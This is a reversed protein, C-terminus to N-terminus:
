ATAEEPAGTRRSRFVLYTQGVLVPVLSAGLVLLWGDVGPPTVELVNALPAVYVALGLLAICLVLAGWVFPNRTIENRLLGSDPNRMNFVHFLRSVSLTLFSVTVAQETGMDLWTFALAFAGLITGAIVVGYGMIEGWHYRTLIPEDSPRPPHKMVDRYGGGLGLALAPFVDNIMNLYLIQLPLLPLPASAVSALAVALVEGVNGSLLYIVFKRINEFIIRGQEVAAVITPFADDQLVMDAAEQAVQTGREGMAVGIDASKLAPADNVGDGTMAVIHGHEQHLDILRLKQEPSVRAFISAELARREQEESMTDPDGLDTSHMVSADPDDVLGVAHAIHRATEEQDGTVMIVHIGAEQCRDIAAKIDKRPPDLLGVFGLFHVDEYVDGDASNMHKRGLALVRLGDKALEKNQEMWQERAAEDLPEPGDAGEIHTCAELVAGPAGKIAVFVGDDEDHVTAMKKTERDFADREVERRGDILDPRLLGAKRGLALLAVEMPDGDGDEGSDDLDADNCLVAVEIANHLPDWEQPDVPEGDRMFQADGDDGTTVEVTGGPLALRQVTMRGETLTGTKDTFIIGTAGLTEVSSLRRILANRRLMRWMGRALAITAVIPLGEPIAAVALAVATEIMLRLERGAAIGVGAVVAAVGLTIWVLRQGLQDLREELPTQEEEADAVLASIGGLETNMGSAVVVGAGSGRTISTGKYVMSAREALPAGEDAPEAQKEVPVSEGTLAAENAQLKSAEILRLDAAVVEGESLVVVDGPVLDEASLRQKEGGRRVTVEVDSMEQLAEMSRVARWETFFGVLTNILLVIGIAGADIYEGFAISVAAAAVLLLVILSKLQEIFLDWLSRREMERLRNPGVRQLREKAEETTLGEASTDLADLVTQPEASWPQDLDIDLAADADQAAPAPM